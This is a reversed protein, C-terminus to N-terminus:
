DGQNAIVPQSGCIISAMRGCPLGGQCEGICVHRSPGSSMVEAFLGADGADVGGDFRSPRVPRRHPM